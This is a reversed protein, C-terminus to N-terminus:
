FTENYVLKVPLKGYLSKSGKKANHTNIRKNLDVTM